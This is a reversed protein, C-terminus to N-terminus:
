LLRTCVKPKGKTSSRSWVQNPHHPLALPAPSLHRSAWEVERPFKEAQARAAISRYDKAFIKIPSPSHRSFPPSHSSGSAKSVDQLRKGVTAAPPALNSHLFALSYNGRSAEGPLVKPSVTRKHRM